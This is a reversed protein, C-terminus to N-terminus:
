NLGGFSSYSFKKKICKTKLKSVYNQVAERIIGLSSRLHDGFYMKHRPGTTLASSKCGPRGPNLDEERGSAPSNNLHFRSIM